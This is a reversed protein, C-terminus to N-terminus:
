MSCQDIQSSMSIRRFVGSTTSRPSFANQAPITLPSQPRAGQPRRRAAADRSTRHAECGGIAAVNPGVDAAAPQIAQGTLPLWLSVTTGKGPASSITLAGGSREAFDRAMSLGLGTGKGVPKTTLFPEGARALMKADMGVGTDAVDIRVYDGPFPKLEEATVTARRASLTLLGGPGMADRGNIALNVLVTEFEARDVCVTPLDAEVENALRIDNGFALDLLDPLDRLVGDVDVPARAHGCRVYCLLRKVIAAGRTAARIQLASAKEIFQPDNSRQRIVEASAVIAQLINNIDHAVGSTAMGVASLREAQALQAVLQTRPVRNWATVKSM